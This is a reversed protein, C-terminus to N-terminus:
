IYGSIIIELFIRYNKGRSGVNMIGPLIKNLLPQAVLAMSNQYHLKLLFFKIKKTKRLNEDRHYNNLMVTDFQRKTVDTRSKQVTNLM